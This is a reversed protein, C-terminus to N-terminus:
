WAQVTSTGVALWVVYRPSPAIGVAESLGKGKGLVAGTAICATSVLTPGQCQLCLGPLTLVLCWARMSHDFQSAYVERGHLPSGSSGSLMSGPNMDPSSVGPKPSPVSDHRVVQLWINM